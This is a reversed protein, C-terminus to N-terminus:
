VLTERRRRNVSVTMLMQTTRYLIVYTQNCLDCCRGQVLPAASNPHSPLELACIICANAHYKRM